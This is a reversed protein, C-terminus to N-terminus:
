CAAAPRMPRRRGLPPEPAEMATRRDGAEFYGIFRRGDGLAHGFPSSASFAACIANLDAEEDIDIRETSGGLGGVQAHYGRAVPPRRRAASM